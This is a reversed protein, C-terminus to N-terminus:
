DDKSSLASGIVRTVVLGAVAAIGIALAPSKRVFERAEDTLENMDKARLSDAAKEVNKSADRAYDGYKAGVNEDIVPASDGILRALNAIADSIRSKMDGAFERAKEGTTSAFNRAASQIPEAEKTLAIEVSKPSPTPLSAATSAARAAADGTRSTASHGNAKAAPTKRATPKKAAAKAPTKAAPKGAASKPKAAASKSVTKGATKAAPRKAPAKRPKSSAASGRETNDSDAM